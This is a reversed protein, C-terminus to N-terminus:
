RRLTELFERLPVRPQSGRRHYWRLERYGKDCLRDVVEVQDRPVWKLRVPAGAKELRRLSRRALADLTMCGAKEKIGKSLRLRSLMTKCDSRIEVDAGPPPKVRELWRLAMVLAGYEAMLSGARPGCNVVATQTHIVARGVYVQLGAVAVGYRGEKRRYLGDTVILIRSLALNRLARDLAPLGEAASLVVEGGEPQYTGGLSEVLLRCLPESEGCDTVTIRRGALVNWRTSAIVKRFEQEAGEIQQTLIKWDQEFRAALAAREREFTDPQERLARRAAGVEGRAQSIQALVEREVKRAQRKLEKSDKELRRVDQRARGAQKEKRRLEQVTAQAAAAVPAAAAQDPYVIRRLALRGIDMFIRYEQEAWDSLENLFETMDETRGLYRRIRVIWVINLRNDYREAMYEDTWLEPNDAPFPMGDFTLNPILRVLHERLFSDKWRRLIALTSTRIWKPGKTEGNAKKYLGAVRLVKQRMLPALTRLMFAVCFFAEAEDDSIQAAEPVAEMQEKVWVELEDWSLHPFGYLWDYRVEKNGQAM